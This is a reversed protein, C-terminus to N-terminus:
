PEFGNRRLTEGDKADALSRELSELEDLAKARKADDIEHDSYRAEEFLFTLGKVSDVGLKLKESIGDSFESATEHPSTMFGYNSLVYCMQRYCNLITDRYDGSSRLNRAATQVVELAELRATATTTPGHGKRAVEYATHMGGMVLVFSVLVVAGFIIFTYYLLLPNIGQSQLVPANQAQTLHLAAAGATIVNEMVGFMRLLFTNRLVFVLLAFGVAYGLIAWLFKVGSAEKKGKGLFYAALLGMIVRANAVVALLYITLLAPAILDAYGGIMTSGVPHGLAFVTFVTLVCLLAASAM